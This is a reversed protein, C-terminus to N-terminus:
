VFHLNLIVYHRTFGIQLAGVFDCPIVVAWCKRSLELSTRALKFSNGLLLCEAAVKPELYCNQPHHQIQERAEWIFAFGHAFMQGCHAASLWEQVALAFTSLKLFLKLFDVRGHPVMFM